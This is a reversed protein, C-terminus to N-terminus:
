CLYWRLVRSKAQNYRYCVIMWSLMSGRSKSVSSVLNQRIKNNCRSFKPTDVLAVCGEEERGELRRRDIWVICCGDIAM